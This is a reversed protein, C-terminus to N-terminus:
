RIVCTEWGRKGASAWSVALNAACTTKGDSMEASTVMVVQLKSLVAGAYEIHSRLHCFQESIVHQPESLTILKAGKGKGKENAAGRKGFLKFGM